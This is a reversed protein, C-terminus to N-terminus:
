RVTEIRIFKWAEFLRPASTSGSTFQLFCPDDPQAVTENLVFNKKTQRLPEIDIIQNLTPVRARVPQLVPILEKTTLLAKSGSVHLIGVARDIYNDMRSLALPPYLPVPMVGASIAGLFSLVFNEPSSLVLALRDGKALGLAQLSAGIRKAETCVEAFSWNTPNLDNDLFTYGKHTISKAADRAAILTEEMDVEDQRLADYWQVEIDM